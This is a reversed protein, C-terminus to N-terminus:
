PGEPAKGHDGEQPIDEGLAPSAIVATDPLETAPVHMTRFDQEFQTIRAELREVRAILQELDPEPEECEM